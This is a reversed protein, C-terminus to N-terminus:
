SAVGGASVDKRPRGRRRLPAVAPASAPTGGPGALREAIYHRISAVTIRRSRGDLYSQLKGAKLLAYGHTNGRDLMHWARRPSVALRVDDNLSTNPINMQARMQIVVSALSTPRVIGVASSKAIERKLSLEFDL